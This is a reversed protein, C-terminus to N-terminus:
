RGRHAATFPMSAVLNYNAPVVVRVFPAQRWCFLHEVSPTFGIRNTAPLAIFDTGQLRVADLNFTAPRPRFALVLFLTVAAAVLVDVLHSKLRSGM